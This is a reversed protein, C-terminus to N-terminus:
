ATSINQYELSVLLTKALRYVISNSSTRCSVFDKYLVCTVLKPLFKGMHFIDVVTYPM